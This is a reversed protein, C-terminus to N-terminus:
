LGVLVREVQLSVWPRNAVYDQTRACKSVLILIELYFTFIVQREFLAKKKKDIVWFVDFFHSRFISSWERSTCLVDLYHYYYYYSKMFFATSTPDWFHPICFTSLSIFVVKWPSACTYLFRCRRKWFAFIRRHSM